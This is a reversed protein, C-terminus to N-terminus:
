IPLQAEIANRLRKAIYPVAAPAFHVPDTGSNGGIYRDANGNGAPAGTRGTGTIWASADLFPRAVASAAAQVRANQALNTFTGVAYLQRVASLQGLITTAETTIAVSDADNRSGVVLMVDDATLRPLLDTQIRGRFRGVNAGGAGDTTWGTGGIASLWVDDCSIMRALDWCWMSTPQVGDAGFALSDGVVVLRRRFGQPPRWLNYGTAVRVGLFDPDLITLDIMRTKASGFAFKVFGSGAGPTLATAGLSARGDVAMRYEFTSGPFVASVEFEAADCMFRFTPVYRISTSGTILAARVRNNPSAANAPMGPTGGIAFTPDLALDGDAGTVNGLRKVGTTTGSAITTSTAFTVTPVEGDMDVVPHPLDRRRLGIAVSPNLDAPYGTLPM